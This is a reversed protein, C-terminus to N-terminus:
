FRGYIEILELTSRKRVISNGTSVELLWHCRCVHRARTRDKTKMTMELNPVLAAASGALKRPISLLLIMSCLKCSLCVSALEIELLSLISNAKDTRSRSHRDGGM